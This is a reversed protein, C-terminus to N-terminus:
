RFVAVNIYTSDIVGNNNDKSYVEFSGVAADSPGELITQGANNQYQALGVVTYNVDPMTAGFNVRYNGIGLDTISSVNGSARIAPTGGGNFNVWARCGYATAVSGYGSNFKLDGTTTISLATTDTSGGGGGVKVAFNGTGATAGYCRVTSTNTAYELIARSTQHASLGSGVKLVGASADVDGVVQLKSTPDTTGIGVNGGYPNLLLEWYNTVGQSHYSQIFPWAQSGSGEQGIHIGRNGGDNNGEFLAITGDNLGSANGIVHLDAEPTTTGIGVNGASTIRLKETNGAGNARTSFALYSAINASTANEKAGKIVGWTAYANSSDTSKGAFAIQGGTDAAQATNSIINLNGFSNTLPINAGEIIAEAAGDSGSTVVATGAGLTHNKALPATTGVGVRGNALVTVKTASTGGTTTKLELKGEGSSVETGTVAAVNLTQACGFDLSDSGGNPTTIKITM